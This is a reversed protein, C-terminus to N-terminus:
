SPHRAGAPGLAAALALSSQSFSSQESSKDRSVPAGDPPRLRLRIARAAAVVVIRSAQLILEHERHGM